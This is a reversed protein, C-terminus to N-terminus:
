SHLFRFNLYKLVQFGCYIFSLPVFRMNLDPKNQKIVETKKLPQFWASSLVLIGNNQTEGAKKSAEAWGQPCYRDPFWVSWVQHNGHRHWEELFVFPFGNRLKLLTEASSLYLKFHKFSLSFPPFTEQLVWSTSIWNQASCLRWFICYFLNKAAIAWNLLYWHHTGVGLDAIGAWPCCLQHPGWYGLKEGSSFAQILPQQMKWYNQETLCVLLSFRRKKEM